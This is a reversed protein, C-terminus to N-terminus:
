FPLEVEFDFYGVLDIADEYTVSNKPLALRLDGIKAFEIVQNYLNPSDKSDRYVEDVKVIKDSEVNIIMSEVHHEIGDYVYPGTLNQGAYSHSGENYVLQGMDIYSGIKRLEEVVSYAYFYNESYDCKKGVWYDYEESYAYVRCADESNEFYLKTDKGDKNFEVYSLGETFEAYIGDIIADDSVLKTYIRAEYSKSGMMWSLRKHWLVSPNEEHENCSVLSIVCLMILVFAVIKKTTNKLQYKM